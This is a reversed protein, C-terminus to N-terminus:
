RREPAGSLELRLVEAWQYGNEEEHMVVLRGDALVAHVYLDLMMHTLVQGGAPDVVSVIPSHRANLGAPDLMGSPLPQGPEVRPPPPAVYTPDPSNSVVWLLGSEPDQWLQGALFAATRGDSRAFGPWGEDWELTGVLENTLTWEEIVGTGGRGLWIRGGTGAAMSSVGSPQGAVFPSPPGVGGLVTGDHADYLVVERDPVERPRAGAPVIAFITDGVPLPGFLVPNVPQLTRLWAGDPGFVHMAARPLDYILLTGDAAGGLRWSRGMEGPGDGQRGLMELFTGDPAYRLIGPLPLHDSILYFGGDGALAVRVPGAPSVEDDVHGLAVRDVVRIECEVCSPEGTVVRDYPVQQQAGCAAGALLAPLM